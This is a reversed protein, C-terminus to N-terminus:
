LLDQIMGIQSFKEMWKTMVPKSELTILEGSEMLCYDVPFGIFSDDTSSLTPYETLLNGSIDMVFNHQVMDDDNDDMTGCFIFFQDDCATIDYIALYTGSVPLSLAERVYRYRIQGDSATGHGGDQNKACSCLCLAAAVICLLLICKKKM